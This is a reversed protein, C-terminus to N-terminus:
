DNKQTGNYFDERSKRFNFDITKKWIEKEKKTMRFITGYKDELGEVKKVNIDRKLKIQYEFNSIKTPDYRKPVNGQKQNAWDSFLDYNLQLNVIDTRRGLKTRLEKYSKVYNLKHNQGAKKGTKFKTKGTKGKPTGLKGGGKILKKDVYLGNKDNYKGAGIKGEDSKKGEEFIRRAQEAIINYVSIKFPVAKTLLWEYYKKERKIWDNIEM